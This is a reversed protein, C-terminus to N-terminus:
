LISSFVLWINAGTIVVAIVLAIFVILPKNVFPGMKRKDSTFAVLPFIAFPLQISLVVQSLILLRALGHDGYIFIVIMAPIIALLRTIVRRVWPKLKLHIFGEMIIQGSLTGTITSNHGSAFLALAFLISALTTGLTPALLKYADQIEAIERMGRTYFVSASLILIGANVFFALLLAVTSDLAAFRIAQRKANVSDAIKRTQVIASHMYLNHPMVTAGLIGIAIYLMEHNTVIAPNPLFGAFVDKWVPQSLFLEAGFAVMIVAILTIVLAELYRFGKRQLFLLIFVDLATIVVGLFLPLKFLLNLAIASGIVEALDCATIAIEALIWLIFSIPKSYSDHCAQALDRKTVIGLKLSLYQLLIAILNSIFIVILLSYGFKSGGALDTAWNGPDMYGVAVLFGPGSFALVKKLFSYHVPVSISSNVEDLSKTIQEHRWGSSTLSTPADM